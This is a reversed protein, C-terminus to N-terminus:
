YQDADDSDTPQQQKHKQPKREGENTQQMNRNLTGLLSHATECVSMQMKVIQGSQKKWKLMM